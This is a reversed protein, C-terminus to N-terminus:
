AEGMGNDEGLNMVKKAQEFAYYYGMKFHENEFQYPDHEELKSKIKAAAVIQGMDYGEEWLDELLSLNKFADWANLFRLWLNDLKLWIYKM